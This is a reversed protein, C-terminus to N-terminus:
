PRQRQSRLRRSSRSRRNRRNSNISHFSLPHPNKKKKENLISFFYSSLPLHMLQLWGEFLHQLFGFDQVAEKSLLFARKEVGEEKRLGRIRIKGPPVTAM